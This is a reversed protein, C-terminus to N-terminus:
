DKAGSSQLKPGKPAPGPTESDSAKPPAAPQASAAPAAPAAGASEGALRIVSMAAAVRVPGDPSTLLPQLFRVAGPNKMYGLGIAALRQLSYVDLESATNDTGAASEMEKRPNRASIACIRYSELTVEGLRALVTAALVRVRPSNRSSLLEHLIQMNRPSAERGLAPISALRLDLYPGRTYSELLSQSAADGLAGLAEYLSYKTNEDREDVLVTKLPGIASPDGIKGMVMAANSRVGAERDQLLDALDGTHSLNGMRYLAYIIAAYVRKDREGVKLKAKEALTPEAPKYAIDGLAMAASFRVIANPDELAQKLMPGAQTGMVQVMAELANARTVADKDDAAERLVTRADVVLQRMESDSPQPNCGALAATAAAFALM